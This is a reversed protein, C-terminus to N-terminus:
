VHLLKIFLALKKVTDQDTLHYISKLPWFIFTFWWVAHDSLSSILCIKRVEEFHMRHKMPWPMQRTWFSSSSALSSYQEPVPLTSFKAEWSGLAEIMQLMWSCLHATLYHFWTSHVLVHASTSSYTHLISKCLRYVNWHNPIHNVRGSLLTKYIKPHQFTCLIANSITLTGGWKQPDQNSPESYLNSSRRILLLHRVELVMSNFEKPSYLTKACALITSTKGTGPPGYFLLHPLRDEQMFRQVSFYALSSCWSRCMNCVTKNM